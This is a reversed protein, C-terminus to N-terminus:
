DEKIRSNFPTVGPTVDYIVESLDLRKGLLKWKESQRKRAQRRYIWWCFQEGWLLPYFFVAYVTFFFVFGIFIFAMVICISLWDQLATLARKIM